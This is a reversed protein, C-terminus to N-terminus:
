PGQLVRPSKLDLPHHLDPLPQKILRLSRTSQGSNKKDANGQSRPTRFSDDRHKGVVKGTLM